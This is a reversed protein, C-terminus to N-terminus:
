TRKLVITLHLEDGVMYSVWCDRPYWMPSAGQNNPVTYAGSSLPSVNTTHPPFQNATPHHVAYDTRAQRSGGHQVNSQM